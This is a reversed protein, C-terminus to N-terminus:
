TTISALEAWKHMLNSITPNGKPLTTHAVRYTHGPFRYDAFLAEHMRM